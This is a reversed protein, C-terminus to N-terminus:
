RELTERERSAEVLATRAADVRTVAEAVDLQAARLERECREVFAQRAVLDIGSGQPTAGALALREAAATVAERCAAELALERGLAAKAQEEGQERLARLSELRFSFRKM